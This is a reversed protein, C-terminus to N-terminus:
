EWYICDVPCYKIAENVDAEPYTSLETIEAYGAANMRFVQPCAEICVGCVICDSLEIVPAKM